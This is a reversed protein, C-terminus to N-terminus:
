SEKANKLVEFVMRMTIVADNLPAKSEEEGRIIKIFHKIEDLYGYTVKRDTTGTIKKGTFV